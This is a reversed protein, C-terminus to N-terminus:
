GPWLNPSPYPSREKPGSRSAAVSFRMRWSAERRPTFITPDPTKTDSLSASQFLNKWIALDIFSSYTVQSGFCGKSELLLQIQRVSREAQDQSYIVPAEGQRRITRNIWNSDTPSSLCYIRMAVPSFILKSNPKQRIYNKVGSIAQQVGKAEEKDLDSYDIEVNNKTLLYEGQPIFKDVGCSCFAVAAVVFVTAVLCIRKTTLLSM